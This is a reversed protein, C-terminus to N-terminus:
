KEKVIKGLERELETSLDGHPDADKFGAEHLLRIGEVFPLRLGDKLFQM